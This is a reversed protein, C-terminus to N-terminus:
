AGTIPPVWDEPQKAEFGCLTWAMRIDQWILKRVGASGDRLVFSPHFTPVVPMQGRFLKVQGRVVNVSDDIDLAGLATSGLAVIVVPDVIEIQAYLFPLCDILEPRTPPRNSQGRLTDPRCKLSNAIYLMSSSVGLASILNRLLQGAHGVFPRGEEDETVGPAEGVFMLPADPDGEGFVVSKRAEVIGPCNQCREAQIKLDALKEAKTCGESKAPKLYRFSM